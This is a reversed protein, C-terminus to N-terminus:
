FRDAQLHYLVSRICSIVVSYRCEPPCLRNSLILRLIKYLDSRFVTGREAIVEFRMSGVPPAGYPIGYFSTVDVGYHTSVYSGLVTGTSIEVLPGDDEQACCASLFCLALLIVSILKM